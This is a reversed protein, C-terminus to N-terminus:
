FGKITLESRAKNLAKSHGFTTRQIDKSEFDDVQCKFVIDSHKEYLARCNDRKEQISIDM